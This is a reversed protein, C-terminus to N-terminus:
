HHNLVDTLKGTMDDQTQIAKQSLEFSRQVKILDIMAQVPEINSSELSEVALQPSAVPVPTNSASWLNGGVKAFDSEYLGIQAITNKGQHVFGSGTVKIQGGKTDLVPLGQDTVLTQSADLDFSGNRTYFTKDDQKVAFMGQPTRIAVNLANGTTRITGVSRDIANKVAEPGEGMSGLYAGKGGDAYLNKSMVDAFALTDAKYGTTATNALNNSIVDMWQATTAMGKAATYIGRNM